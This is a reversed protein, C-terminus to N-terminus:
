AFRAARGSLGIAIAGEGSFRWALLESVSAIESIVTEYEDLSKSRTVFQRRKQQLTTRM